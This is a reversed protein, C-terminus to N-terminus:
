ASEAVAIDSKGIAGCNHEDVHAQLHMLAALCQRRYVEARKWEIFYDQTGVTVRLGHVSASYLRIASKYFRGRLRKSVRFRTARGSSVQPSKKLRLMTSLQTAAPTARPPLASESNRVNAVSGRIHVILVQGPM